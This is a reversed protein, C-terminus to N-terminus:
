SEIIRHNRDTVQEHQVVIANRIRLTFVLSKLKTVKKFQYDSVSSVLLFGAKVDNWVSHMHGSFACIMNLVNCVRYNKLLVATHM